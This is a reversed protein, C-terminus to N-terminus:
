DRPTFDFSLTITTTGAKLISLTYCDDETYTLTAIDPDSFTIELYDNNIQHYGSDGIGVGIKITETDGIEYNDKLNKVVVENFIANGKINQQAFRFTFNEYSGSDGFCGDGFSITKFDHYNM